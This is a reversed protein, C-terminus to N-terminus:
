LKQLNLLNTIVEPERGTPYISLYLISLSLSLSFIYIDESKLTESMNRVQKPGKTVGTESPFFSYAMHGSLWAATQFCANLVAALVVWQAGSLCAATQSLMWSRLGFLGSSAAIARTQGSVLQWFALQNTDHRDPFVPWRDRFSAILVGALRLSASPRDHCTMADTRHSANLICALCYWPPGSVTRFALLM